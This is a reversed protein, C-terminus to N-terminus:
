GLVNLKFSNIVDDVTKVEIKTGRLSSFGGITMKEGPSVTFVNDDDSNIRVKVRETVLTNRVIIKSGDQNEGAPTMEQYSGTIDGDAIEYERIAVVAM